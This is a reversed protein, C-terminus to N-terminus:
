QCTEKSRQYTDHIARKIPRKQDVRRRMQVDRQLYRSAFEAGILTIHLYIYTHKEICVFIYVYIYYIYMYLYTYMRLPYIYIYM